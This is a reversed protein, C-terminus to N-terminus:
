CEVNKQEQQAKFEEVKAAGVKKGEEKLAAKKDADSMDSANIEAKKDDYDQKAKAAAASAAAAKDDAAKKTQDYDKGYKDIAGRRMQDMQHERFNKICEAAKDLNAKKSGSKDGMGGQAEVEKASAQQISASEDRRKRAEKQRDAKSKKDTEDLKKIQANYKK